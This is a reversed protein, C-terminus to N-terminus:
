NRFNIECDYGYEKLLITFFGRAKTQAEKVLLSRYEDNNEVDEKLALSMKDKLMAREQATIESRLGTVRYHEEQVGLDRGIYQTQIAPLTLKIFKRKEDVEVDSSKLESLDIYADIYTQFSYAAIRDGFKIGNIFADVGKAGVDSITGVKNLSMEALVLKQVDQLEHFVNIEKEKRCSVTLLAGVMVCAAIRLTKYM